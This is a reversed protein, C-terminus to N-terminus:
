VVVKGSWRGKPGILMPVFQPVGEIVVGCGLTPKFAANKAYRFAITSHDILCGTNMGFIMEDDNAIYFVAGHSHHHGIVTSKRNRVALNRAAFMGGQADGHEYRVGDIEWANSWYWGEPAGLWEPVTRLYEEPIGALYAKKYVRATHNSECVMMEPFERYWPRLRKRAERLEPGPGPAEPDPDFRSLGMQDVEDGMCVYTDTDFKEAVALVFSLADRHEFPIQLDSIALVRANGKSLRM